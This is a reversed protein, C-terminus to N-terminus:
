YSNNKAELDSINKGKTLRFTLGDDETRRMGMM